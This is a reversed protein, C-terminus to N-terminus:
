LATDTRHWWKLVDLSSVFRVVASAATYVSGGFSTVVGAGSTALTIASGGVQTVETFVSGGIALSPFMLPTHTALPHLVRVLSLPSSKGPM